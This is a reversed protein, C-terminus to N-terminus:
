FIALKLGLANVIRVLSSIQVDTEGKEIKSIYTRKLGSKEALVEQTLNLEKRREKLIMGYYSAVAEKNFAEREETGIKGYKDELAKSTNHLKSYDIKRM